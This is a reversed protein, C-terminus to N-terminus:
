MNGVTPMSAARKKMGRGFNVMLQVTFSRPPDPRAIRFVTYSNLVNKILFNMQINKNFEYGTRLDWSAQGKNRTQMRYQDVGQVFVLFVQDVQTMYGYYQLASGVHYKKFLIFDVDAKFQQPNRYKLMGATEQNWTYDDVATKMTFHTFANKLFTGLNKNYADATDDLDVGYFYTYGFQTVMDVNPTIHGEGYWTLEWGFIRAESINQSQFYPVITNNAADFETNFVFEVMDKFQTYFLCADLYGLYNGIKISRKYGLEATYGREPQLSTNPLIQIGGLSYLVYKEAISPVRFAQGISLRLYNYKRIEFSAGARFIPLTPYIVSDEHVYEERAGANLTL